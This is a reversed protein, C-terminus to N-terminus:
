YNYDNMEEKHKTLIKMEINHIIHVLMDVISSVCNEIFFRLDNLYTANSLLIERKILACILSTLNPYYGINKYSLTNAEKEMNGTKCKEQLILNFEDTEIRYNKNLILIM